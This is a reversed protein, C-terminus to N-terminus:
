SKKIKFERKEPTLKKLIEKLQADGIQQIQGQQIAQGLVVLIQVAKEPNAAKLNGYRQLAEKTFIQKVVAELQEIQQQLQAQENIQDNIESEQQKKLEELRKRKLEELEDMKNKLLM